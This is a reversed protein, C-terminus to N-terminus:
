GIANKLSRVFGGAARLKAEPGTEADLVDILASGVIVGDCCRSVERAQEPTRIGFGAAVPLGTLAKVNDLGDKLDGALGERAGTVGLQAVYYIFGRASACIMARRKPTSTPALMAIPDLPTGDTLGMLPASEEFPLDPIIVGDVGARVAAEVFGSEGMAFIPNYYTMLILPLRVDKRIEGVMGLIARLSTGNKLSRFSARQITPGDAMPDSFPVGLEVLDAGTEELRFILDKTFGLDPDGATVFSILAKGGGEGAGGLAEFCEAIRGM